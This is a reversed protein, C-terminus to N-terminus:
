DKKRIYINGSQTKMMIEPGGGNLKGISWNNTHSFEFYQTKEKEEETEPREKLDLDFGTYIEGLVTKLKVNAAYDAPLSIDLHGSVNTLLMTKAVPIKDFSVTIDGDNTSANVLGTINKAIIDGANSEVNINGIVNEIQTEGGFNYHVHVNIEKPVEIAFILDKKYESSKVFIKNNNSSIDVRTNSHTIKTLGKTREDFDNRKDEHLNNQQTSYKILVDKRDVAKIHIDGQYIRIKLEKEVSPSDFPVVVEKEQGILLKAPILFLLLLIYFPYKM